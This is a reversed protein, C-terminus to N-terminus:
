FSRIHFSRVKYTRARYHAGKNHEWKRPHTIYKRNHGKGKRTYQSRNPEYQLMSIPRVLLFSYFLVVFSQFRFLIAFRVILCQSIEVCFASFPPPIIIGTSSFLNFSLMARHLRSFSIHLRFHHCIHVFSHALTNGSSPTLNQFPSNIAIQAVKLSRILFQALRHVFTGWFARFLAFFSRSSSLSRGELWNSRNFFSYIVMNQKNRITKLWWKTNRQRSNVSRVISQKTMKTYKQHM